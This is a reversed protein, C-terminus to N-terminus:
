SGYIQKVPPKGRSEFEWIPSPDHAFNEPKRLRLDRTESRKKRLRAALRPDIVWQAAVTQRCVTHPPPHQAPYDVNLAIPQHPLVRRSAIARALGEVIAPRPPAPHPHEGRDHRLKGGPGSLALDHHNIDLWHNAMPGLVMPSPMHFGVARGGAQPQFLPPAMCVPTTQDPSGFTPQVRLQM